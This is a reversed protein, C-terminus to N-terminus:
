GLRYENIHFIARKKQMFIHEKIMQLLSSSLFYVNCIQKCVLCDCIERYARTNRFMPVLIIYLSNDSFDDIDMVPHGFLVQPNGYISSVLFGAIPIKYEQFFCYTDSANKGAGYIYVNESHKCGAILEEIEAMM